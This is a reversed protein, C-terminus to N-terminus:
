WKLSSMVTPSWSWTHLKKSVLIHCIFNQEKLSLKMYFVNVVVSTLCVIQNKVYHNKLCSIWVHLFNHTFTINTTIATTKWLKRTKKVKIEKTSISKWFNEFKKTTTPSILLPIYLRHLHYIRAFYMSFHSKIHSVM